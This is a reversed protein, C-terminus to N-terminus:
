EQGQESFVMLAHPNSITIKGRESKIWGRKEWESLIRSATYITTGTYDAINQRSLPINICIGRSTKIGAAKSLRLIANAVRQEVKESCLELYRNQLEELRELVATLSNIAIDPTKKMMSIITSKDWGIVETEEISEATAPYETDKLVSVAATLEGAYIYRIIVERGHESIKSLKLKGSKVLYCNIANDGQHFM